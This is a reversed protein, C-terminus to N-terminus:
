ETVSPSLLSRILPERFDTGPAFYGGLLARRPGSGRDTQDVFVKGDSGILMTRMRDPYTRYLIRDGTRFGRRAIASFWEPLRDSTHRYLERDIVGSQHAKELSERVGEVWRNLSVDREFRASVFVQEAQVATRAIQDALNDSYARGKAIRAFEQRTPEDVRIDVTLVDVSFITKELLMHMRAYPGTALDDGSMGAVPGQAPVAGVNTIAACTVLLWITLLRM